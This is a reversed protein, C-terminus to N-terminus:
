IGPVRVVGNREVRAMVPSARPEERVRIMAGIAGDEDAIMMRSITFSANGAILQVPDGKKIVPASPTSASRSSVATNAAQAAPVLPVRIRWGIAPCSVTAAGMQPGEVLPTAPCPALRLRRDIPAVPGGPEGRNAGMSAAVLGDLRDLNEFNQAKAPAHFSALILAALLLGGALLPRKTSSIRDITM